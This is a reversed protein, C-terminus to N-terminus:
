SIYILRATGDERTIYMMETLIESVDSYRCCMDRSTCRKIINGLKQPYKDYDASARLMNKLLIGMSYIDTRADINGSADFQEPAAYGETGFCASNKGDGYVSVGFDILTVCGDGAVIINSPKIDCHYIAPSHDHLYILIRCLSKIITLAEGLSLMGNSMLYELTLGDIYEMILSDGSEESMYGYVGPIGKHNLGKHNLGKLIRYENKLAAIGIIDSNRCVKIMVYINNIVDVARYGASMGGEHIIGEVYYRNYLIRGLIDDTM